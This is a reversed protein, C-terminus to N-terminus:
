PQSVRDSFEISRIFQIGATGILKQEIFLGFISDRGSKIIKRIYKKQSDFSINKPNNLLYKNESILGNVYDKNVDSEVINKFTLNLNNIKFNLFQNFFM